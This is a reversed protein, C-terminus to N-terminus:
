VWFPVDGEFFKLIAGDYNDSPYDANVSVDIYGKDTLEKLRDFVGTM